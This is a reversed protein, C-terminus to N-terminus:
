ALKRFMLTLNKARDLLDAVAECLIETRSFLIQQKAFSGKRRAVLSIALVPAAGWRAYATLDTGLRCITAGLNSVSHALYPWDM